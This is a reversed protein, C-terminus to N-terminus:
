QLCQQLSNPNPSWLVPGPLRPTQSQGSSLSKPGSGKRNAKLSYDPRFFPHPSQFSTGPGPTLLHSQPCLPNTGAILFGSEQSVPEERPKQAERAQSTHSSSFGVDLFPRLALASPSYPSLQPYGKGVLIPPFHPGERGLAKGDPEKTAKGGLLVWAVASIVLPSDRDALM